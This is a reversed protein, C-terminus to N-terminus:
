KESRIHIGQPSIYIYVCVLIWCVAWTPPWHNFCPSFSSGSLPFFGPLVYQAFFLVQIEKCDNVTWGAVLRLYSAAILLNRSKRFNFLNGFINFMKPCRPFGSCQGGVRYSAYLIQLWFSNGLRAGGRGSSTKCAKTPLARKRM